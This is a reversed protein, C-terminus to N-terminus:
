TQEKRFVTDRTLETFASKFITSTAHHLATVISLTAGTEMAADPEPPQYAGDCDLLFAPTDPRDRLTLSEGPRLARGPLLAHRVTVTQHPGASVAFEGRAGTVPLDALLLLPCFFAPHIYPQWDALQNVPAPVHLEDVYRLGLREVGGIPVSNYFAELLRALLGHFESFHGYDTHEVVVASRWVTVAVTANFAILRFLASEVVGGSARTPARLTPPAFESRAGPDALANRLAELMHTDEGRPAPIFRMEFAVLQLPANPFIESSGVHMGRM